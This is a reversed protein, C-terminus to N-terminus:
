RMTMMKEYAQLAKNRIELTLEMLVEAKQAAIMVEHINDIEGTALKQTLLDAEKARNNVESLARSLVTSFGEVLNRPQGRVKGNQTPSTPWRTSRPMLSNLNISDSM